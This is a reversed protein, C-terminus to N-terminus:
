KKLETIVKELGTIDSKLELKWNWHYCLSIDSKESIVKGTGTIGSKRVL